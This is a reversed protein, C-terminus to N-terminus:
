EVTVFAEGGLIGLNVRLLGTAGEPVAIDINGTASAGAYLEGELPDPAVAFNDSSRIVTGDDAVFAVSLFDASASDDGIYTATLNALAYQSGAPPPDNFSNAAMVQDTANRDFSNVVIEWDRGALTEGIAAPNDRTGLDGQGDASEARESGGVTVDGGGFADDVASGILGIFVVPAVIAGIISVVVAGISSRKSKGAMFLGVLGLIFGIPLLIWGAILIGPICSLILGLIAVVLAIRGLTNKQKPQQEMGPYPGGGPYPAGYPYQPPQGPHQGPGGQPYAGQPAYGPQFGQQQPGSQFGQQPQGGPADQTHGGPQGDLPTHADNPGQQPQGSGAHEPRQQSPDTMDNLM